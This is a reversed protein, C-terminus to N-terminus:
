FIDSKNQNLINMLSIFFSVSVFRNGFLIRACSSLRGLPGSFEIIVVSKNSAYPSSERDNQTRDRLLAYYPIQRVRVGM